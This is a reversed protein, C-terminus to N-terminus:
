EVIFFSLVIAKLMRFIAIWVLLHVTRWILKVFFYRKRAKPMDAPTEKLISQLGTCYILWYLNINGFNSENIFFDKKEHKPITLNLDNFKYNVIKFTRNAFHSLSTEANYILRHIKLLRFYFIFQKFTIFLTDSLFESRNTEQSACFDM